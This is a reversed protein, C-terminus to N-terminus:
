SIGTCITFKNKTNLSDVNGDSGDSPRIYIYPNNSKCCHKLYADQIIVKRKQPDKLSIM